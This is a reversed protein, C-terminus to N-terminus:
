WEYLVVVVFGVGYVTDSVGLDCECVCFEYQVVDAGVYYLYWLGYGVSGSDSWCLFSWSDGFFVVQSPGVIDVSTDRFSSLDCVVEQFAAKVLIRIGNNNGSDSCYRNSIPFFV